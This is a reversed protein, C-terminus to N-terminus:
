DGCSKTPIRIARVPVGVGGSGIMVGITKEQNGEEQGRERGNVYGAQTGTRV